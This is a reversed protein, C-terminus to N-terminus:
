AALSEALTWLKRNMDVDTRLTSIPRISDWRGRKNQVPAGGRTLNEQVVNFTRWLDSGNDTHRRPKLLEIPDLKMATGRIEVAKAAFDIRAQASLEVKSWAEAKEIVNGFRDVIEYAIESVQEPTKKFHRVRAGFENNGAVTMGNLCVLRRLGADFVYGSTRDHSNRLLLEPILMGLEKAEPEVDARRMRVEHMAYLRGDPNRKKGERVSAVILGRERLQDIVTYSPLFSYKESVSPAPGRAFVSPAIKRIDEDTMGPLNDFPM